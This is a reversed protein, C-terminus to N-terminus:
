NVSLFADALAFRAHDELVRLAERCPKRGADLIRATDVEETPEHLLLPEDLVLPSSTGVIGAELRKLDFGFPEM